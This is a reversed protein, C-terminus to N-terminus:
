SFELEALHVSVSAGTDNRVYVAAQTELGFTQGPEVPIGQGAVAAADGGIYISGGATSPNTLVIERRKTNAAALPTTAADACAVPLPTALVDPMSEKTGIQGAFSLRSDRIDGKGFGLKVNIDTGTENVLEVRSFPERMTLGQEMDSLPGNDFSVRFPADAQLITLVSSVRAAEVSGNAPITFDRTAYTPKNSM